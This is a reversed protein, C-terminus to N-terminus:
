YGIALGDKRTESGGILVGSPDLRIIQSGGIPKQPHVVNHGMAKLKDAVAGQLTTEVTTTEGEFFVRPSDIAAQPDLGHDVMNAVVHAHGTAQYAGGMVGFSALTEGDKLLMAPIITHLPRKNPAFRNPHGEAMTFCAGRNQLVIGTKPTVIGSGFSHYVSNIFSVATRDKDVVTLYVTDSGPPPPVLRPTRKQPDIMGAMTKAFGKDLLKSVATVMTAPDAVHQDRMAYALRSAEVELHFREASNLGLSALDFQELINLIVLATIGQGNPPIEAVDYGRYSSTVPTVENGTHSSLDDETLFSGKAKLTAIIDAAVAGEYFGKRGSKAVAELSSALGANRMLTGAAPAKGNVLFQASAGEDRSLRAVDDAWDFAVRPAVPWGDRAYGIAPRLLEDLGKRGFREVLAAWADVTGPVTVAHVSDPHVAKAGLANIADMNPNKPSRGSGNYGTLPKGPQSVIWFCDGGLGTMQPEVVALVAAAAVVADAATGGAKLVSLAASSALPHSTAVLGETAYVPSRGPTHFDRLSFSM